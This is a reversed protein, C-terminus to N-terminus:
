SERGLLTQIMAVASDVPLRFFERNKRSRFLNLADHIKREIKKPNAYVPFAEETKFDEPVATTRSLEAARKKVPGVTSGIKLLNPMAPNSLIYIWGQHESKGLCEDKLVQPIDKKRLTRLREHYGRLEEEDMDKPDM